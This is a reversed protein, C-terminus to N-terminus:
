VWDAGIKSRAQSHRYVTSIEQQIAVQRILVGHADLAYHVTGTIQGPQNLRRSGNCRAVTAARGPNMLIARPHSLHNHIGSVDRFYLVHECDRKVFIINIM